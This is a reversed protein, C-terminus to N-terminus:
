GHPKIWKEIQALIVAKRARAHDVTAETFENAVPVRLTLTRAGVRPRQSPEANFYEQIDLWYAKGNQADFLM